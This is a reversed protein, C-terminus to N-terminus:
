GCHELVTHKWREVYRSKMRSVSEGLRMGAYWLPANDQAYHDASKQEPRKLSLSHELAVAQVDACLIPYTM